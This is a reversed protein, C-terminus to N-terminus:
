TPNNDPKLVGAYNQAAIRLTARQASDGLNEISAPLIAMISAGRKTRDLKEPGDVDPDSCILAFPKIPGTTNYAFVPGGSMGSYVPISTEICPGKCLRTGSAFYATVRGVRLQPRLSLKFQRSQGNIEVDHTGLDGFSMLCIEAGIAPLQDDMLFEATPIDPSAADQPVISLVAMDTKEDYIVSEVVLCQISESDRLVIRLKTPAIDIPKAPPRFIGPTTGNYRPEGRQQKHVEELVHAATVVWAKRGESKVIFGTGIPTPEGTVGFSLIVVLCRYFSAQTEAENWEFDFLPEDRLSTPPVCNSNTM